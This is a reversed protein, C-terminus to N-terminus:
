RLVTLACQAVDHAADFSQSGGVARTRNVRKRARIM